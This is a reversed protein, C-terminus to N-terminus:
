YRTRLANRRADTFFDPDGFIYIRVVRNNRITFVTNYTQDYRLDYTRFAGNTAAATAGGGAAAGIIGGVAAGARAANNPDAGAATANAAIGAGVAAGVSAGAQAANGGGGGPTGTVSSASAVPDPGLPVTDDPYGYRFLVKRFDDGLKVTHIPDEQQTRAIPSQIGAAIIAECYGFKDVVFGMAYTDRKYLWEVEGPKLDVTVALAWDPLGGLQSQPFLTAVSPPTQPLTLGTTTTTTSAGGGADSAGGSLGGGKGGSPPGGLSPGGLSPGGSLGGPGGDAGAGGGAGGAAAQALPIVVATPNGHLAFLGFRDIRNFRDKDVAKTGLGIGALQFELPYRVWSPVVTRTGGRRGPYRGSPVAAPPIPRPFSQAFLVRKDKSKNKSKPAPTSADLTPGTLLNSMPRKLAQGQWFPQLGPLPEGRYERHLRQITQLSVYRPLKAQDLPRPAMAARLAARKASQNKTAKARRAHPRATALVVPASLAAGVLALRLVSHKMTPESLKLRKKLTQPAKISKEASHRALKRKRRGARMEEFGM